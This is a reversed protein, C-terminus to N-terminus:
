EELDAFSFIRPDFSIYFGINTEGSRQKLINVYFLDPTVITNNKSKPIVTGAEWYKIPRMQGIMWDATHEINSTELADRDTPVPFTKDSVERRGQCGLLSPYKGELANDKFGDVCKFLSLRRDHEGDWDFRQLYDIAALATPCGIKQHIRDIDEIVKQASLVKRTDNAYLSHGIFIIPNDEMMRDANEHIDVWNIYPKNMKIDKIDITVYNALLRLLIEEIATEKTVYIPPAYKGQGNRYVECGQMIMHMMFSTNHTVTFDELLFLGDGDITFGYYDDVIDKEISIGTLSADVRQTKRLSKKREVKVPIKQIDGYIGLEYYITDNVVKQRLTTRFGLSDAVFKIDEILKKRKQTIRYGNYELSGDTDILGALLLLRNRQNNYKYIDPIHKNNLLDMRRLISIMPESNDQSYNSFRIYTVSSNRKDCVLRVRKGMLQGYDLCYSIIEQDVNTIESKTSTGDGLWLGIFYPSLLFEKEDFEVSAKYGKLRDISKVNGNIIDRVSVNIVEDTGSYKLSLIHSENVRYDIAKNQRIWYMQERGRAISLVNRPTSDPGMLKEGPFVDEVNRLTGDFMVVRTGKALCKGHGPLALVIGLDTPALPVLVEDIRKIGLPISGALQEGSQIKDLHTHFNDRYLKKSYIAM